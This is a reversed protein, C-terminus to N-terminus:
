RSCDYFYMLIKKKEKSRFIQYCITLFFIFSSFKGSTIGWVNCNQCASFYFSHSIKLNKTTTLSLLNTLFIFLIFSVKKQSDGIEMKEEKREDGSSGSGFLDKFDSVLSGSSHASDRSGEAQLQTVAPPQLPGMKEEMLIYMDANLQSRGAVDEFFEDFTQWKETLRSFYFDQLFISM